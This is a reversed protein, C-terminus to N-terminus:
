RLEDDDPRHESRSSAPDPSRQRNLWRGVRWICSFAIPVLFIVWVVWLWTPTDIDRTSNWKVAYAAALGVVLFGLTAVKSRRFLWEFLPDMERPRDVEEVLEIPEVPEAGDPAARGSPPSEHRHEAKAVGGDDDM